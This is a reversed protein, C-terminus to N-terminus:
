MSRIVWQSISHDFMIYVTHINTTNLTLLFTLLDPCRTVCLLWLSKSVLFTDFLATNGSSTAREALRQRSCYRLRNRPGTTCGCVSNWCFRFGLASNNRRDTKTLAAGLSGTTRLTWRVLSYWIRLFCLIVHIMSARLSMKSKSYTAGKRCWPEGLGGPDFVLGFKASKRPTFSVPPVSSIYSYINRAPGLIWCRIYKTPSRWTPQFILSITFFFSLLWMYLRRGACHKVFCGNLLFGVFCDSRSFDIRHFPCWWVAASRWVFSVSQSHSAQLSSVVSM